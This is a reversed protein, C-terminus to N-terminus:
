QSRGNEEVVMSKIIAGESVICVDRPVTVEGKLEFEKGFVGSIAITRSPFLAFRDEKKIAKKFTSDVKELYEEPSCSVISRCKPCLYVFNLLQTPSFAQFGSPFILDCTPCHVYLRKM